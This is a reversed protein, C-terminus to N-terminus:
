AVTDRSTVEAITLLQPCSLLLYLWENRMLQRASPLVRFTCFVAMLLVRREDRGHPLTLGPMWAHDYVPPAVAGDSCREEHHSAWM